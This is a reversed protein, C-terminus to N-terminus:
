FTLNFSPNPQTQALPSHFFSGREWNFLRRNIHSLDGTPKIVICCVSRAASSSLIENYNGGQDKDREWVPIGVKNIKSRNKLLGWIEYSRKIYYIEGVWKMFQKASCLSHPLMETKQMCSLAEGLDRLRTSRGRPSLLSMFLLNSSVDSAFTEEVTGLERASVVTWIRNSMSSYCGRKWDRSRDEKWQIYKVATLPPQPLERWINATQLQLKQPLHNQLWLPEAYLNSICYKSTNSQPRFSVFFVLHVDRHSFPPVSHFHIATAQLDNLRKM